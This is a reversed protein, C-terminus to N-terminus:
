FEMPIDILVEFGHGSATRISIQGQLLHVRSIINTLGFGKKLHDANPHESGVGNDKVSIALGGNIVEVRITVETASSHKVINNLLEQVIRYIAINLEQSLNGNVDHIILEYAIEKSEITERALDHLANRLGFDQLVSPVLEFSISRVKKIAKKLYLRSNKKDEHDVHLNASFLLQGVENHLTEAIRKREEEQTHLIAKLVQTHQEKEWVLKEKELKLLEESAVKSETIDSLSLVVGTNLKVADARYWKYDHEADLQLELNIKNGSKVVEKLKDFLETRKFSSFIASYREASPKNAASTEKFNDSTHNALVIQFDIVEGNKDKIAELVSITSHSAEFVSNLLERSKIIEEEMEKRDHIDIATVIWLVINGSSDKLPLAKNLHWLYREDKRKLRIEYELLETNPATKIWQDILGHFDEPHIIKRWGRNILDDCSVGTFTYSYDNCYEIKGSPLVIYVIFPLVNLTKYLDESNLQLRKM